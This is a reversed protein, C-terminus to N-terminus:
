FCETTQFTDLNGFHNYPLLFSYYLGAWQYRVESFFFFKLLVINIAMEQLDKLLVIDIAMEQLDKLLVIYIAM